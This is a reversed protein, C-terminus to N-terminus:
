KVFFIVCYTHPDHLVIAKYGLKFPFDLSACYRDLYHYLTSRTRYFPVIVPVYAFLPHAYWGRNDLLSSSLLASFSSYSSCCRRPM